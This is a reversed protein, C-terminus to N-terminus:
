FLCFVPLSTENFLIDVFGRFIHEVDNNMLFICILVVSLYKQVGM